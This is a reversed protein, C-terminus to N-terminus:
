ADNNGVLNGMGEKFTSGAIKVDEELDSPGYHFKAPLFDRSEIAQEVKTKTFVFYGLVLVLIIMDTKTLLWLIAYFRISRQRKQRREPNLRNHMRARKNHEEAMYTVDSKAVKAYRIGDLIIDWVAYLASLLGMFLMIFRLWISDDWMWAITLLTGVFLSCGVILDQSAHLDIETPGEENDHKYKAKENREAKAYQHMKMSRRSRRGNFLMWKYIWSLIYYRNHFLGSKARVFFCILTALTTLLLLSIAGFKSMYGAPLTLSYIPETDGGFKTLGGEYKDIMIFEIRGREAGEKLGYKMEKYWIRLDSHVDEHYLVTLLKLPTLIPIPITLWRGKKWEWEKLDEWKLYYWYPIKGQWFVLIFLFSVGLFFMSERQADSPHLPTWDGYSGEAVWEALSQHAGM